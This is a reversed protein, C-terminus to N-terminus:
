TRFYSLIVRIDFSHCGLYELFELNEKKTLGKVMREKFCKIKSPSLEMLEFIPIIDLRPGDATAFHHWAKMEAVTKPAKFSISDFKDELEDKTMM